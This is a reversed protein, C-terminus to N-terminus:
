GRSRTQAAVVGALWDFSPKPTRVGTAPDVAVLGCPADLGATWEVGDLLSWVYLGRVDVGRQVATAVARLHADLFAIRQADDRYAAGTGTIVLPPLAARLRARLTILWERLADPVVPWGLDTTPYGVTECLEFPLDAELPAAGIRMPMTYDIGYFDLPQRITALDGPEVVDEMLPQLDVPYRGLLMAELYFGNWLADFLKTAGVDAADESVPWMPAHSTACGVEGAAVSRVAVAARGHALLLHHGAVVADLGLARGPPHLGVGYGFMSIVNPEHVPIWAAVRDGLRTAVAAAYEAFRDATARNLWGGDQELELPLDWHHLTATPEVGAGLLADVLRDYHDLGSAAIAGRGTPQVRAWSISFKHAAVGLRALLAVDDELHELGRCATDAGPLGREAVFADWTTAGRGARGGETPWAASAVGLRFGPPLVPHSGPAVPALSRGEGAWPRM